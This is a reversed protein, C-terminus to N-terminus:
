PSLAMRRNPKTSPSPTSRHAINSADETRPPAALAYKLNTVLGPQLAIVHPREIEVLLDHNDRRLRKPQAPLTFPASPPVSRVTESPPHVPGTHYDIHASIVSNLHLVRLCECYGRLYTGQQAPLEPSYSLDLRDQAPIHL